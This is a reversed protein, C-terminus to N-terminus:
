TQSPMKALVRDEHAIERMEQWTLPQALTGAFGQVADLNPFEDLQLRVTGDDEITLALWDGPRAALHRRLETPLTIQGKANLRVNITNM